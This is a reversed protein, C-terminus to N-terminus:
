LVNSETLGGPATVVYRDLKDVNLGEYLILRAPVSIGGDSSMPATMHRSIAKQIREFGGEVSQNIWLIDDAGLFKLIIRILEERETRPGLGEILREKYCINRLQFTTMDMLEERTYRMTGRSRERSTADPYLRYSYGNM